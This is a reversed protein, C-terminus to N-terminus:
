SACRDSVRRNLELCVLSPKLTERVPSGKVPKNSLTLTFGLLTLLPVDLKLAYVIAASASCCLVSVQVTLLYVIGGGFCYSLEVFPVLINYTIYLFQVSHTSANEVRISACARKSASLASHGSQFKCIRATSSLCVCM